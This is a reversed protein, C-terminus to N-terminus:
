RILYDYFSGGPSFAFIQDDLFLTMFRINDDAHNVPDLVTWDFPILTSAPAGGSLPARASQVLGEQTTFLIADDRAPAAGGFLGVRFRAAPGPALPDVLRAFGAYCGVAQTGPTGTSGPIPCPGETPYFIRRAKRAVALAEGTLTSEESWALAFDQDIEPRGLYGQKSNAFVLGPARISAALAVGSATPAFASGAPLCNQALEVAGGPLAVTGVTGPPVISAVTTECLATGGRGQSPDFLLVSDGVRVGLAPDAVDAAAVYPASADGTASQFAVYPNGSADLLVTAPQYGLGPLEGQYVISWDDAPTFGPWVDISEELTLEDNVVTPATVPSSTAAVVDDWLGLSGPQAGTLGVNQTSAATAQVRSAAVTMVPADSPPGWRALDYWYAYGDSSTVAAVASTFREGSGPLIVLLPVVQVGDSPATTPCYISPYSTNTAGVTSGAAVAFLGQSGQSPPYGIAVHAPVGPIPMPARYSQAPVVVPGGAPGLAPNVPQALTAPDTALVGTRPDLTALGCNVPRDVGCTEPDLAAYVFLQRTSSITETSCNDASPVREAVYGAALALTGAGALLPSLVTTPPGGPPLTDVVGVGLGGSSTLPDTTAIYLHSPLSGDPRTGGFSGPELAIDLPRFGLATANAVPVNGGGDLTPSVSGDLNRTFEVVILKGGAAGTDDATGVLIRAPVADSTPTAPRAPMGQLSIVQAGVGVLHNGNLPVTYAVINNADQADWTEIVQLELEGASVAVLVDAGGDGLSASALLLPRPDTVVSLPFAFGPGIVTQLDYQDIFRVEDGASSAVAFYPHVLFHGSADKPSKSTVGAFAVMATPSSLHGPVQPPGTSCAVLAALVLALGGSAARGGPVRPSARAGQDPNPM